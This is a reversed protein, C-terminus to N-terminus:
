GHVTELVEATFGYGAGVILIKTNLPWAFLEVLKAARNTAFPMMSARAYGMRIKPRTNPHGEPEVGIDYDADFDSKTNYTKRPM